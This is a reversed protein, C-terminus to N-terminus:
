RACCAPLLCVKREGPRGWRGSSLGAWAGSRVQGPPPRWQRLLRLNRPPLAGNGQSLFVPPGQCCRGWLGGGRCSPLCPQAPPRGHQSRTLPAHICFLAHLRAPVPACCCIRPLQLAAYCCMACHWAAGCKVLAAVPAVAVAMHWRGKKRKSSGAQLPEGSRTRVQVISKKAKLLVAPASSPRGSTGAGGIVGGSTPVSAPATPPPPPAPAGAAEGGAEVGAEGDAAEPAEAKGQQQQPGTSGTSLSHSHTARSGTSLALHDLLLVAPVHLAM